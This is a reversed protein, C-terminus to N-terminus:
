TDEHEEECIIGQKATEREEQIRKEGERGVYFISCCGYGDKFVEKQISGRVGKGRM